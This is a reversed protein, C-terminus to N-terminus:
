PDIRRDVQTQAERPADSLVQDRLQQELQKAIGMSGSKAIAQAREDDLMSSWTEESASEKGFISDKPVTESMANMVMQLFVGELQQAAQHLRSLAQKQEPTLNQPQKAGSPQSTSVNAAAAAQAAASIPDAM